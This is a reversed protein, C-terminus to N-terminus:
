KIKKGNYANRINNEIGKTWKTKDNLFSRIFDALNSNKLSLKGQMEMEAIQEGIDIHDKKVETFLKNMRHRISNIETQHAEIFYSAFEPLQKVRKPKNDELMKTNKKCLAKYEFYIRVFLLYPPIMNVYQVLHNERRIALLIKDKMEQVTRQAFNQVGQIEEPTEANNFNQQWELLTDYLSFYHEKLDIEFAKEKHKNVFDLFESM